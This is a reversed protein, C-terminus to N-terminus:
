LRVPMLLYLFESQGAGRIVAPKLGDIVEIEVQEGEAAGVGEALYRPNFAITVAEEKGEYQGEIHEVEGGVDHRSVSLEVGGAELRLRVPIHEEAVLSARGVAELVAEKDVTLKNPYVDPLLQRYNPFTGEILRLNLSGRESGFSAERESLAMRVKEAVVTRAVEKLGRAPVLGSRAVSVGKLDRVALRYSDTAVMRVGGDNPEILMGTLVPRAADTSAAVAVQGLAAVLDDGRVDVAGSFDPEGLQPFDAVAMERLTFRPGKGAIEVEGDRSAITVVGAPLKRIAETALRAPIVVSGEELMEVTTSMRATVELDTGVVRLTQGAAECLIGQLIPLASKVGVVRSARGFVDALDDREARVRVHGIGEALHNLLSPLLLLLRQPNPLDRWLGQTAQFKTLPCVQPCGLAIEM